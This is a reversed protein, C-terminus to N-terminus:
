YGAAAQFHMPDAYNWEGGWEWGEKNFANIVQWPMDGLGGMPNSHANLDIAAGWCHLSLKSSTRKPRWSYVGDFSTLCKWNGELHIRNFVNTLSNVLKNHCRIRVVKVGRNWGLPIPQPLYVYSLVAREWAPDVGGDLLLYLQPDGYFAKVEDM